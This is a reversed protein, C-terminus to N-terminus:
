LLKRFTLLKRAQDAEDHIVTAVRLVDVAEGIKHSILIFQRFNKGAFSDYKM